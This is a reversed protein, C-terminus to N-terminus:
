MKILTERYDQPTFGTYKKFFRSFYHQSEYGLAASIDSIRGHGALMAKAREIRLAAIYDTLNQGTAQKFLRSLYSPNFFSMEALRV